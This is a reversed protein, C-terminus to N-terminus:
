CKLPPYSKLVPQLVCYYVKSAHRYLFPLAKIKYFTASKVQSCSQWKTPFNCWDLNISVMRTIEIFYLLIIIFDGEVKILLPNFFIEHVEVSYVTFRVLLISHSLCDILHVFYTVIITYVVWIYYTLDQTYLNIYTYFEFNYILFRQCNKTNYIISAM